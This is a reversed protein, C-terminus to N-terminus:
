GKRKGTEEEAEKMGRGEMSGDETEKPLEM